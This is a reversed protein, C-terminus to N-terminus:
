NVTKLSILSNRILRIAKPYTMGVTNRKYIILRRRLTESDDRDFYNKCIIYFDDSKENVVRSFEGTPNNEMMYMLCYLIVVGLNRKGYFMVPYYIDLDPYEPINLVINYDIEVSTEPCVFMLTSGNSLNVNINMSHIVRSDQNIRLGDVYYCQDHIYGDGDTIFPNIESVNISFKCKPLLERMNEVERLTNAVDRQFDMDESTATRTMREMLSVRRSGCRYTYVVERFQKLDAKIIIMNLIFRFVDSSVEYVMLQNNSQPIMQHKSTNNCPESLWEWYKDTYGTRDVIVEEDNEGPTEFIVPKLEVMRRSLECSYCFNGRVDFSVDDAAEYREQIDNFHKSDYVWRLCGDLSYDTGDAKDIASTLDHPNQELSEIFMRLREETLKRLLIRITAPYQYDRVLTEGFLGRVNGGRNLPHQPLTVPQNSTKTKKRHPSTQVTPIKM